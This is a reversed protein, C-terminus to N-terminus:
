HKWGKSDSVVLIVFKTNLLFQWSISLECWACYVLRQCPCGAVQPVDRRTKKDIFRYRLLATLPEAIVSYKVVFQRFIRDHKIITPSFARGQIFTWASWVLMWHHYLRNKRSGQCVSTDEPLRKYTRTYHVYLKRGIVEIIWAYGSPTINSWQKNLRCFDVYLSKIWWFVAPSAYPSVTDCVIVHQKGNAVIKAIEDRDM